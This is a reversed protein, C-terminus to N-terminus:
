LFNPDSFCIDLDSKQRFAGLYGNRRMLLSFIGVVRIDHQWIAVIKAGKYAIM